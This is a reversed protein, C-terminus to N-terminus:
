KRESSPWLDRMEAPLVQKVDEIEGQSVRHEIVFFVARAVVGPDISDHDKFQQEIRSLFQEKTRGRLPKDTPDWGEYYFGRILMPLQAGLQAVEDVTLRDRLAHLTARLALYVRHKDPWQLVQMLDHLWSNTKQVTRDFVELGTPTM